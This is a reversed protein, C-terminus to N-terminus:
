TAPVAAQSDAPPEPLPSHEPLSSHPQARLRDPPGALPDVAVGEGALTALVRRRRRSQLLNATVSGLGAALVLDGFSVVERLLPVPVIDGLATLSDADTELHRRAGLDYGEIGEWTTIGAGVLAGPRVPMGDNAVVPAFNMLLGLTVIPMGVLHRNALSFWVLLVFSALLPTSAGEAGLVEPALQLAAGLLLLTLARVPARSLASLRGGRMRGVVIGAAIALLMFWM